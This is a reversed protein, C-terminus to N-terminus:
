RQLTSDFGAGLLSQGIIQATRDHGAHVVFTDINRATRGLPHEEFQATAGASYFITQLVDYAARAAVSKAGMARLEASVVDSGQWNDIAKEFLAAAAELRLQGEGVRLQTYADGTKNRQRQYDVFWSFLGEISGLYNAAFGLHFRGQWRQKAFAGPEGLVHTDPVFVNELRMIPSRASRMGHPRYWDDEWSVGPMDREILLMQLNDLYGTAGELAVSTITIDAITGNTVFNKVGNVLWGGDVRHARTKMEYQNIRGPESGVAAFVSFRRLAPKVINEHQWPTGIGDLQWLAHNHLQFCHGTPGDAQCIERLLSLFLGPQRGVLSGDPGGLAASHTVHWLGQEYLARLSDVPVVGERDAAGGRERFAERQSRIWSRASDLSIDRLDPLDGIDTQTEIAVQKLASM